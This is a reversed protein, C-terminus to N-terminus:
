IRPKVDDDEGDEGDEGNADAHYEELYSNVGKRVGREFADSNLEVEDLEITKDRNLSIDFDHIDDSSYTTELSDVITDILKKKNIRITTGSPVKVGELISIVRSVPLSLDGHADKLERLQKIQEQITNM